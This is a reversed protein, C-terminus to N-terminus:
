RAREVRSADPGSGLVSAAAHGFRGAQFDGAAATEGVPQALGPDAQQEGGILGVLKEQDPHLGVTAQRHELPREAPRHPQRRVGGPEPHRRTVLQDPELIEEAAPLGVLPRVGEIRGQLGMHGAIHVRVIQRDVPGAPRDKDGGQEVAEGGQVLPVAKLREPRRGEDVPERRLISAMEVTQRQVTTLGGKDRRHGLAIDRFSPAGMPGIAPNHDVDALVPDDRAAQGHRM